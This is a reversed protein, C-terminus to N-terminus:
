TENLNPRSPLMFGAHSVHRSNTRAWVGAHKLREVFGRNPLVAAIIHV